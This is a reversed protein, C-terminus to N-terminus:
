PVRERRQKERRQKERNAIATVIDVVEDDPLPPRCRLTNFMRAIDLAVLPDVTPACRLLLGSLRAISAGRRSGDAEENIFTRWNEPAHAQKTETPPAPLAVVAAALTIERDSEATVISCLRPEKKRHWSGAWRIPHCIPNNTSDGGVLRAASTRAGKLAALDDPSRAPEKLRWHLHLKDQAVGDEDLWQGGSRVVITAPGLLAELERRADHPTRDCEVSLVLGALMDEEGATKNNNFVALPPAFVVPLPAQAARRADDEACDILFRFDGKLPVPLIRFAPASDDHEVFSRLSIFGESGRYRLLADVFIEIQDRDPELTTM